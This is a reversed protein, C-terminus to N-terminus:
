DDAATTRRWPRPAGIGARPRIKKQFRQLAQAALHGARRERLQLQSDEALAPWGSGGDEAEGDVVAAMEVVVEAQAQVIRALSAGSFM